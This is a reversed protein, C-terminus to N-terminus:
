PDRNELAALPNVMRQGLALTPSVPVTSPISYVLRSLAPISASLSSPEAALRKFSVVVQVDPTVVIRLKNATRTEARRKDSSQKRAKNQIEQIDRRESSVAMRGQIYQLIDNGEVVGDTAPVHARHRIHTKHEGYTNKCAQQKQTAEGNKQIRQIDRRESSVTM